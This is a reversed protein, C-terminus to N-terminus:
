IALRTVRFVTAAPDVATLGSNIATVNIEGATDGSNVTIQLQYDTGSWESSPNIIFVDTNTASGSAGALAMTLTSQGGSIAISGFDLEATASSAATIEGGGGVSIGGTATLNGAISVASDFVSDGTVSFVAGTDAADYDPLTQASSHYGVSLRSHRTPPRAM